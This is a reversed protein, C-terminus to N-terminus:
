DGCARPQEKAAAAARDIREIEALILAGAKVLNRRQGSPKWWERDWPWQDRIFLHAGKMRDMAADHHAATTATLHASISADAAYAAAAMALEGAGHADDHEPTWGEDSIQRQREALVDRAAATFSLPTQRDSKANQSPRPLWNPCTDCWETLCDGCAVGRNPCMRLPDEKGVSFQLYLSGSSPLLAWAQYTEEDYRHGMFTFFGAFSRDDNFRATALHFGDCQNYLLYEGKATPMQRQPRFKTRFTM